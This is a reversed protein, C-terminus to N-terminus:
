QTPSPLRVIAIADFGAQKTPQTGTGPQAAVRLGMAETLVFSGLAVWQNDYTSQDFTAETEGNIPLPNAAEGIMAEVSYGVSVTGHESPIHVFLRYAGPELSSPGPWLFRLSAFDAPPTALRVFHMGGFLGNNSDSELTVDGAPQANRYLGAGPDADDLIAAVDSITLTSTIPSAGAVTDTVGTTSTITLTSTVPAVGAAVAVSSLAVFFSEKRSVDVFPPVPTETPAPTDTPVPTETPTPTPTHTPTHTPTATVVQTVVTERPAAVYATATASVAQLDSRWGPWVFAALALLAVLLAVGSAAFAVLRLVRGRQEQGGAAIKREALQRVADALASPSEVLPLESLLREIIGQSAGNRQGRIALARTVFPGPDPIQAALAAPQQNAGSAILRRYQDVAVLRALQDPIQKTAPQSTAVQSILRARLGSLQEGWGVQQFFVAPVTTQLLRQLTADTAADIAGLQGWTRAEILFRQAQAAQQSLLSVEPIGRWDEPLRALATQAGEADGAAFAMRAQDLDRLPVGLDQTLQAHVALRDALGQRATHEACTQQVAVADSHHPHLKLIAAATSALTRWREEALAFVGPIQENPQLHKIQEQIEIQKRELERVQPQNEWIRQLYREYQTCSEVLDTAQAAAARDRMQGLVDKQGRFDADTRAVGLTDAFGNLFAQVQSRVDGGQLLQWRDQLQRRLIQLTEYEPSAPDTLLLAEDAARAARELSSRDRADMLGLTFQQVVDLAAARRKRREAEFRSRYAAVRQQWPGGDTEGSSKAIAEAAALVLSASDLDADAPVTDLAQGISQQLAQAAERPDPAAALAQRTQAALREPDWALAQAQTLAALMAPLQRQLGAAKSQLKPNRAALADSLASLQILAGLHPAAAPRSAAGDVVAQLYGTVTEQASGPIEQQLLATARALAPEWADAAWLDAVESATAATQWWSRQESGDALNPLILALFSAAQKMDGALVRARGFRFGADLLRVEDPVAALGDHLHVQASQWDGAAFAAEAQRLSGGARAAAKRREDALARGLSALDGLEDLVQARYDAPTIDALADAAAGYATQARNFVAEAEPTDGQGKEILTQGGDAAQQAEALLRRTRTELLLGNLAPVALKRWMEEARGYEGANLADLAREVEDTQKRFETAVLGARAAERWRWAPMNWPDDEQAQTFLREAEPFSAGRFLHVGRELGTQEVDLKGRVEALLADLRLRDQSSFREEGAQERKQLIELSLLAEQYRERHYGEGIKTDAQVFFRAVPQEWALAVDRLAAALEAASAYRGQPNRHLAKQLVTQAGLSLREWNPHRKFDDSIIGGRERVEAGTLVTYIYRSARLLDAPVKDMDNPASLVNWDTVKLSGSDAQWWLNEFKLDTYTRRMREHLVQLLEALQVALRLGDKETFRGKELLLDAVQRGTMLELVLVEPMEPNDTELHEVYTPAAGAQYGLLANLHQAEARFRRKEEEGLGPRMTKVAVPMPETDSFRAIARYVRATLGVGLLQELQYDARQGHITQGTFEDRTIM